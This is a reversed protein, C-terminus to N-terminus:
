PPVASSCYQNGMCVAGVRVAMERTEIEGRNEHHRDGRPLRMSTGEDLLERKLYLKTGM